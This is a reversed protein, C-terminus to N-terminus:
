WRIKPGLTIEELWTTGGPFVSDYSQFCTHINLVRLGRWEMRIEIVDWVPEPCPAKFWIKFCIGFRKAETVSLAM